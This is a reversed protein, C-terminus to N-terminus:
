LVFHFPGLNAIELTINGEWGAHITPATMHVVLGTRARTSKANVFCIFRPNAKPTGVREKTNWLLMGGPKVIVEHGRRFVKLDPTEEGKKPQPPAILYKGSFKGYQFDGLHLEPTKKGGAGLDA